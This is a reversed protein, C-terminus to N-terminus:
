RTAPRIKPSRIAQSKTRGNSDIPSSALGKWVAVKLSSLRKNEANNPNAPIAM